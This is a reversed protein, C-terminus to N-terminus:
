AFMIALVLKVRNFMYKKYVYIAIVIIKKTAEGLYAVKFEKAM